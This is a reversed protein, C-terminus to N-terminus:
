LIAADPTYDRLWILSEACSDFPGAIAIGEDQLGMAVYLAIVAQDEAILVLKGDLKEVMPRGKPLNDEASRLKFSPGDGTERPYRSVFIAGLNPPDDELSGARM